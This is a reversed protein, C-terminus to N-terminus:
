TLGPTPRPWCAAVLSPVLVERGLRQAARLIRRVKQKRVSDPGALASFAESDLAVIM